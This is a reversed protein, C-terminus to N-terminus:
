FGSGALQEMPVLKDPKGKKRKLFISTEILKYKNITVFYIKCKKRLISKSKKKKVERLNKQEFNLDVKRSFWFIKLM